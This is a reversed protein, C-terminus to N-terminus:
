RRWLPELPETPPWPPIHGVLTVSGGNGDLAARLGARTARRWTDLDVESRDAGLAPVGDLEWEMRCELILGDHDKFAMGNSATGTATARRGLVDTLEVTLRRPYPGAREEVRRLARVVASPHGDRVLWGDPEGDADFRLYFSDGGAAQGYTLSGVPPESDTMFAGDPPDTIWTQELVSEVDVLSTVNGISALGQVRVPIVIRNQDLAVERGVVSCQLALQLGRGDYAFTEGQVLVNLPADPAIEAWVRGEHLADWPSVSFDDWALITTRRLRVAPCALVEVRCTLGQEAFPLALRHTVTWVDAPTLSPTRLDVLEGPSAQDVLDPEDVPLRVDIIEVPEAPGQLEGQEVPPETGSNRGLRSRLRNRLLLLLAQLVLAAAVFLGWPYSSTRAVTAVQGQGTIVEARVSYNGFTFAPLTVPIRLVQTGGVRLPALPRAVVFGSPSAGRGVNVSLAPSDFEGTSRNTIRLVLVVGKPAGFWAGVSVPTLVKASVVVPTAPVAKPPIPATRAGVITIPVSVGSFAGYNTVLVVCPCPSPPLHTVVAGYFIGGSRIAASYQDAQDCDNSVNLADQGCIEIQVTQGVPSWGTGTVQVLEGVKVTKTSVHVSPASSAAAARTVCVCTVLSVAIWISAAFRARNPRPRKM